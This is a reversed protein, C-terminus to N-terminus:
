AAFPIASSGRSRQALLANKKKRRIVITGGLLAAAYLPLAAPLPVPVIVKVTTLSGDWFVYRNEIEDGQSKHLLSINASEFPAAADPLSSLKNLAGILSTSDFVDGTRDFLSLTFSSLDDGPGLDFPRIYTNGSATFVDRITEDPGRNWIQAYSPYTSGKSYILEDVKLYSDTVAGYIDREPDDALTSGPVASSDLVFYGSFAQGLSFRNEHFNYVGRTETAIEGVYETISSIFGEFEIKVTSAACTSASWIALVVTLVKLSRM